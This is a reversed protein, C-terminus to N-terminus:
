LIRVLDHFETEFDAMFWRWSDLHEFHFCIHPYLPHKESTIIGSISEESYSEHNSLILLWTSRATRADYQQYVGAQRIVWSTTEEFRKLHPYKFIYCVEIQPDAKGYVPEVLTEEYMLKTEHRMSRLPDNPKGRVTRKQKWACCSFAQEVDSVRNGFSSILSWIDEMAGVSTVLAEFM